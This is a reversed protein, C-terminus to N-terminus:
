RYLVMASIRPVTVKGGSVTSKGTTVASCGAEDDDVVVTWKGKPIAFKVDAANPNLLVLVENWADGSGGKTLGYGVCRPPVSLNLHSDLFKLNATVEERTTMRFMPHNKRLDILGKYYTFIDFNDKKWRWNIMNIADPQNYSNSNGRKTRLMEQGSHIFPIGQSTLVLVAGLRDMRKLDQDTINKDARTTLILRDWFTHNDHSAVYNMVELPSDTFDNISGEIGRKIKDVNIGAQVYGKNLDFVGGKIADRFHDGFVAFGKGKQMGKTTPTIPTEGGTWPEGHIIIDPKIAKLEQVLQTVTPLDHLGMLDFRFGDIDYETVWYKCSEIIFKRMMPAESRTENGTGSGNWYSGDDKLRYYYGPVLGEFSFVKSPRSEATHNYVVDMVVKIGQKHLADVLRKFEEVRKASHRETAYWGDPSNFHVPMYGWNYQDSSEDNDFDQIPMIQVVNVGLETLHDIGTKVGPDEAYTTGGETFALYKGKHTIGSKPDITFDRVHLEYVVAESRHFEPPPAIPTEDHVIMGRGNHATNCRSYPDIVERDPDLRPDSGAAALTYYKGKLDGTIVFEWIGKDKYEMMHENAMGGVPQDYLRLTVGTATPAFVRFVTEDPSYIAGLEEDSYYDPSDLIARIMLNAPKFGKVELVFGGVADARVDFDREVTLGVLAASGKGPPLQRVNTVGVTGGKDGKIIFNAATLNKPAVPASLAVTVARPGDVFAGIIWPTTDPEETFLEDRGALIWVEDGMYPFWIRDTADKSAWNGYKPLLGIQMGTGGYNKREVEFVLGYEDTRSASIEKSDQDTQDDWTWLTWGSYDGQPRHYHMTIVPGVDKAMSGEGPQSMFLKPNGALVWVEDGMDETWIRDPPDKSEWERFKPLLGIQTGDGYDSKTVRFILGFDDRGAAELEKSDMDTKDDWTWLTWEDYDGGFRKYHVTLSDASVGAYTSATAALTVLLAVLIGLRLRYEHM